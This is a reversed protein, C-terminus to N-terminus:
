LSHARGIVDRGAQAEGTREVALGQAEREIPDDSPVFREAGAKYHDVALRDLLDIGQIAAEDECFAVEIALREILENSFLSAGCEVQRLSREQTTAQHSELLILMYEEDGHMM